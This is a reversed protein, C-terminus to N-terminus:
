VIYSKWRRGLDCQCCHSVSSWVRWWDVAIVYSEFGWSLLGWWLGVSIWAVLELDFFSPLEATKGKTVEYM